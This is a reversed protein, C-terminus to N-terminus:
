DADKGRLYRNIAFRLKIQEGYWTTRNDRISKLTQLASYNSAGQGETNICNNLALKLEKITSEGDPNTLSFNNQAEITIMNKSSAYSKPQNM